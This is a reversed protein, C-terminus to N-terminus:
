VLLGSSLAVPGSDDAILGYLKRRGEPTVKDISDWGVHTNAIIARWLKMAETDETVPVHNAYWAARDRSILKTKAKPGTLGALSNRRPMIEVTWKIRLRIHRAIEPWIPVVDRDNKIPPNERLYNWGEYNTVLHIENMLAHVDPTSISITYSDHTQMRGAQPKTTSVGSKIGLSLLLIQIDDALYPSSTAFSILVQAIRRSNNLSVSGDGDILGALLALRTRRSYGLFGPPLRKFLCSRDGEAKSNRNPHYCQAVLWKGLDIERENGLNIHIKKSDGSIGNDEACHTESYERFKATAGSLRSCCDLFRQKVVANCKTHGILRKNIWGDSIFAGLFWGFDINDFIPTRCEPLQRIVSVIKGVADKAPVRVIGIEPDFISIMGDRAITVPINKQRLTRLTLTPLTRIIVGSAPVWMLSNRPGFMLVEIRQAFNFIEGGKNNPPASAQSIALEDIAKEMTWLNDIRCFIKTGPTLHTSIKHTKMTHHQTKEFGNTPCVASVM